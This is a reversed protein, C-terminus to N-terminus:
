RWDEKERERKIRSFLYRSARCCGEAIDIPICVDVKELNKLAFFKSCSEALNWHRHSSNRFPSSATPRWMGQGQENLKTFHRRTGLFTQNLAHEWGDLVNLTICSSPVSWIQCTVRTENPKWVYELFFLWIASKEQSKGAFLGKVFPFPTLYMCRTHSFCTWQVSGGRLSNHVAVDKSSRIHKCEREIIWSATSSFFTFTVWDSVIPVRM